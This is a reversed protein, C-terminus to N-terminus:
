VIKKDLDRVLDALSELLKRTFGPAAELLGSLQRRAIIAVEMDSLAVVSATRPGGLPARHGTHFGESVSGGRERAAANPRACSSPQRVSQGRSSGLTPVSPGVIGISEQEHWSAAPQLM